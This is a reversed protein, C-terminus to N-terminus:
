VAKRSYDKKEEIRKVSLVQLYGHVIEKGPDFM